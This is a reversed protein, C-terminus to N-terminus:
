MEVYIAENALGCTNLGSDSGSLMIYGMDGWDQQVVIPLPSLNLTLSIRFVITEEDGRGFWVTTGDRHSVENWSNRVMWYDVPRLSCSFLPHACVSFPLLVVIWAISCAGSMCQGLGTKQLGGYAVLQVGHDM